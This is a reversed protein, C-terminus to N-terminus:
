EDLLDLFLYVGDKSQFQAAPYTPVKALELYVDLPSLTSMASNPDAIKGLGEFIDAFAIYTTRIICINM